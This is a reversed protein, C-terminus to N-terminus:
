ISLVYFVQEDSIQVWSGSSLVERTDDNMLFNWTTTVILSMNIITTIPSATVRPTPTTTTATKKSQKHCSTPGQWLFAVFKEILDRKRDNSKKRFFVWLNWSTEPSQSHLFDFTKSCHPNENALFLLIYNLWPLGASTTTPLSETYLGYGALHPYYLLTLVITSQKTIFCFLLRMNESTINFTTRSKPGVM